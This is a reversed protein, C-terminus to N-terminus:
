IPPPMMPGVDEGAAWAIAQLRIWDCPSDSIVRGNADRGASDWVVRAAARIGDATTPRAAGQLRDVLDSWELNLAHYQPSNDPASADAEAVAEQEGRNAVIRDCLAILEADSNASM